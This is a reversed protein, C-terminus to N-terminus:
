YKNVLTIKRSKLGRFLIILALIVMPSSRYGFESVSETRAEVQHCARNFSSTWSQSFKVELARFKSSGLIM